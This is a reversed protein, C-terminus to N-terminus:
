VGCERRWGDLEDLVARVAPQFDETRPIVILTGQEYSYSDHWALVVGERTQRTRLGVFGAHDRRPGIAAALRACATRALDRKAPTRM